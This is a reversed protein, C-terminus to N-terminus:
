LSQTLPLSHAHVKVEDNCREQTRPARKGGVFSAIVCTQWIAAIPVATEASDGQPRSGLAATIGGRRGERMRRAENKRAGHIFCTCLVILLARVM